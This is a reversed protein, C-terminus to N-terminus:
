GLDKGVLPERNVDLTRDALQDLNPKSKFGAWNVPTQVYRRNAEYSVSNVLFMCEATTVPDPNPFSGITYTHTHPSPTTIYPITSRDTTVEDM